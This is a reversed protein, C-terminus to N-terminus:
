TYRIRPDLWGYLLDVCLNCMMVAVAIFLVLGQTLTFDRSFVATFLLNGIGDLNFVQEVIVAGSIMTIFQIGVFTVVPILANKIAHRTMVQREGLGKAWATRVYDNRLVDLMASRTLRMVTAASAAALAISPLIFMQLNSVPDELISKYEVPPAWGWWIAPFLLMLIGLWFSPISVGFVSTYRVLYDLPTDQRLASVVGAPVGVLITILGSLLILELTVPVRKWIESAVPTGFTTSEGLDGRMVGAIWRGYQSDANFAIFPFSKKVSVPFYPDDLGLEARIEAVREETAGLGAQAVATDAPLLRLMVFTLLSVGFLLPVLMVLRGLAYTRM